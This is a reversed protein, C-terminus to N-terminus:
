ADPGKSIKENPKINAAKLYMLNAEAYKKLNFLEDAASIADNYERKEDAFSDLLKSIEAIKEAPYKENPRLDLAKQYEIRAQEYKGESYLKNLEILKNAPYLEAPKLSSAKQYETRASEFEQNKFFIDAAAITKNYDNEIERQATQIQDIEAIRAKAHEDDPEIVLIENYKGKAEIYSAKEFLKDAESVLSAFQIDKEALGSKM